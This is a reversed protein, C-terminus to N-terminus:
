APVALAERVETDTATIDRIELFVHLAALVPQLPLLGVYPTVGAHYVEPCLGEKMFEFINVNGGEIPLLVAVGSEDIMPFREHDIAMVALAPMDSFGLPQGPRDQANQQCSAVLGDMGVDAAFRALRLPVRQAVLAGMIRLIVMDRVGFRQWRGGAKPLYGDRRWKELNAKSVGTFASVDAVTFNDPIRAM